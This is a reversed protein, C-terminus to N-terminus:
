HNGQRHVDDVLGLGLASRAPYLAADLSPQGEEVELTMVLKWAPFDPPLRVGDKQTTVIPCGKKQALQLLTELQEKKFTGHDAVQLHHLTQAGLDSLTREFAKPRAIGSLAIVERGAFHTANVREDGPGAWGTAVYRLRVQPGPLALRSKPAGQTLRVWFLQARRLAQVPERLPGAPLLAGNGLGAAEDVVVIDVDRALRRHQFGDDLILTDLGFREKAILALRDRRSGVFVFASPCRAHILLPEDGAIEASPVPKGPELIVDTNSRRGYGRTLVGVKRGQKLLMGTLHIVAPTKGAGGVNINGVSIVQVGPVRVIPLWRRDYLANRLAVAIGYVVSASWLPAGLLKQLPTRRSTGYWREQWDPRTM